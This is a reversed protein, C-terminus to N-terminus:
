GAAPDISANSTSTTGFVSPRNTWWNSSSIKNPLAGVALIIVRFTPYIGHMKRHLVAVLFVLRAVQELLVAVPVFIAVNSTAKSYYLEHYVDTGM